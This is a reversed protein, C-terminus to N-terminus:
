RARSIRFPNESFCAYVYTGGSANINAGTGRMKFGNSLLDVCHTASASEADTLNPYLSLDTLNYANRSSDFIYWSGTTDTRKILIWRPRFNTFVFPGDTSGNGTYSGFASYGSVAAFCYAVYTNGSGNIWAGNGITFVSSTMGSASPFTNPDSSKAVTSNLVIYDNNAFGTFWCNWDTGGTNRRKTIIFSPAVGLGHGVTSPQTGNGTYTVVSFGATPNASVTSTITGSTNSVTGNGGKWAWDVLTTTTAHDGTGMTYGNSNFSTMFTTATQEASSLNPSVIQSPGRIADMINNNTILNRGKDWIMDPQFNLSSISGGSSGFGSRLVIDFHKNGATINPLPLNYTNLANFGTPPTGSFGQQGFNISSTSSSMTQGTAGIYMATGVTFTACPNAGTAPNGTTGGSSNFWYTTGSRLLGAWMKGNDIDVAILGVDGATAQYATAVSANVYYFPSGGGGGKWFSCQNSSSGLYNNYPFTSVPAAGIGCSLSSSSQINYMEAYWKGSSASITSPVSGNSSTVAFTLNGASLSVGNANNISNLVAYNSASASVTPSDIMSDYTTGATLSINNPTWNNGNGSSDQVLTTTSTTNSFPLYFGNTGYTGTYKKPQWVGNTDYAGFSSPTLAQGDIFNMEALYGDFYYPDSSFKSITHLVTDNIPYDANLTFNPSVAFSTVQAGNIYIKCRNSATAQTTDLAVIIHYWASPDRFVQTTQVLNGVGYLNLSLSTPSDFQIALRANTGAPGGSFLPNYTSTLNGIKVWSSWTWTKRNSASAPTRNLYASASARFRLSRNVNYGGLSGMMLNNVEVPLGM